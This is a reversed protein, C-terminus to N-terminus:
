ADKVVIENGKVNVTVKTPTLKKDGASVDCCFGGKVLAALADSAAKDTAAEFTCKNDTANRNVKVNSVGEVKGLIAIVAKDCNACCLHLGDAKCKVADAAGGQVFGVMALVMGVVFLQRM